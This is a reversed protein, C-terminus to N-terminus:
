QLTGASDAGNDRRSRFAVLFGSKVGRLVEVSRRSVGDQVSAYNRSFMKLQILFEALPAQTFM